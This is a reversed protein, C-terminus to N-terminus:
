VENIQTPPGVTQEAEPLHSELKYVDKFVNEIKYRWIKRLKRASFVGKVHLNRTKEHLPGSEILYKKGSGSFCFGDLSMNNLKLGLKKSWNIEKLHYSHNYEGVCMVSVVQSFHPDIHNNIFDVFGNVGFASLKVFTPFELDSNQSYLRELGDHLNIQFDSTAIGAAGVILACFRQEYLLFKEAQCHAVSGDKLTITGLSDIGTIVSTPTPAVFSLTM